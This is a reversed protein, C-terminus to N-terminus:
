KYKQSYWHRSVSYVSCFVTNELYRLHSLHKWNEPLGLDHLPQVFRSWVFTFIPDNSIDSFYQKRRKGIYASASSANLLSERSVGRIYNNRGKLNFKAWNQELNYFVFCNKIASVLRILMNWHGSCIYFTETFYFIVSKSPLKSTLM